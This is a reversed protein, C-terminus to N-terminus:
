DCDCGNESSLAKGSLAGGPIWGPTRLPLAAPLPLTDAKKMGKLNRYPDTYAHTKPSVYNGNFPGRVFGGFYKDVWPNYHRNKNKGSRTLPRVYRDPVWHSFEKGGKKFVKGILGGGVASMGVDLWDVCDLGGGKNYLQMGLELAAFAIGWAIEGTPDIYGTSNNHVYSYVNDGGGL